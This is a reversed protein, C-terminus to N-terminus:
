DARTVVGISEKEKQRRKERGWGRESVESLRDGPVRNKLEGGNRIEGERQGETGRETGRETGGERERNRQRERQGEKERDRRIRRQGVAFLLSPFALMKKLIINTDSGKGQQVRPRGYM